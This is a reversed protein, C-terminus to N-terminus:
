IYVGKLIRFFDCFIEQCESIIAYLTIIPNQFFRM